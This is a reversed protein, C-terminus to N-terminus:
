SLKSLLHRRLENFILLRLRLEPSGLILKLSQYKDRLIPVVRNPAKYQWAFAGGNDFYVTAPGFEKKLDKAIRRDETYLYSFGKEARWDEFKIDTTRHFSRM